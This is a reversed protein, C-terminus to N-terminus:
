VIRQELPHYLFCVDMWKHTCENVQDKIYTKLCVYDHQLKLYTYQVLLTWHMLISLSSATSSILKLCCGCPVQVHPPYPFSSSPSPKYVNLSLPSFLDLNGSNKGEGASRSQEQSSSQFKTMCPQDRMNMKRTVENTNLTISTRDGIHVMCVTSEDAEPNIAPTMFIGIHSLDSTLSYISQPNRGNQELPSQPPPISGSEWSEKQPDLNPSVTPVDNNTPCEILPLLTIKSNRPLSKTLILMPSTVIKIDIKQPSSSPTASTLVWHRVCVCWMTEVVSDCGWFFRM